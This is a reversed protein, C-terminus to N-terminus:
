KLVLPQLVAQWRDYGLKNLHLMDSEFYAEDPKGTVQNLIPTSVDLYHGKGRSLLFIKILRNAARVQDAYKARSPSPKISMFYIEAKPMKDELMRWLKTFEQAVFVGSKGAAIDNEGAYIFVKRPKYPFLIYPTYYDVLQELTCGGVGRRIIPQGAFRQELDTWKRISSSGIFLIGKKPPMQLSDQKKFDRIENDFPFGQQARATIITTTLVFLLILRLKM